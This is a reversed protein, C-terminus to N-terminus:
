QTQRLGSQMKHLAEILTRDPVLRTPLAEVERSFKESAALYEGQLQQIEQTEKARPYRNFLFGEQAVAERLIKYGKELEAAAQNTNKAAALAQAAANVAAVKESYFKHLETEGTERSCGLFLCLGLGIIGWYVLTRKM